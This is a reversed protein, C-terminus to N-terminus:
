VDLFELEDFDFYLGGDMGAVPDIQVYFILNETVSTATGVM